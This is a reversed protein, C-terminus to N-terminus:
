RESPNRILNLIQERNIGQNYRIDNRLQTMLGRREREMHARQRRPDVEYSKAGFFFRIVTNRLSDGKRSTFQKDLGLDTQAAAVFRDLETLFRIQKLSHAFKKSLEMGVFKTKEGPLNEIDRGLFLDKNLVLEPGIKWPGFNDIMTKGMNYVDNLDAAPLWGGLMFYEPNGDSNIQTRISTNDKIWEHVVLDEDHPAPVDKEINNKIDQLAAYHNPRDVIGRLQLPINFRTWAYFPFARKMVKKEFKTLDAYNFLYRKVSLAAEEPSAGKGLKDVFHAIRAHDELVSGVKMGFKIGHGIGPVKELRAGKRMLTEGRKAGLRVEQLDIFVEWQNSIGLDNLLNSLNEKTFNYKGIKFRKNSTPSTTMIQTALKYSKIGVMALLNNGINGIVNRMHFSPFPFLTTAKWENLVIDLTKLLEGDVKPDFVRATYNDLHDAVDKDFFFDNLHTGLDKLYKDNTKTIALRRVGDPIEDEAFKKGLTKASDILVKADLIAKERVLASTLFIRSIDEDFLQDVVIGEFGPLKGESAMEGLQKITYNRWKENRMGQFVHTANFGPSTGFFLNSRDLGLKKVAKPNMIRTVYDVVSSELRVTGLHHAQEKLFMAEQRTRYESAIEAIREERKSLKGIGKSTTAIIKLDGNFAKEGVEAFEIAEKSIKEYTSGLDDATQQIKTRFVDDVDKLERDTKRQLYHVRAQIKEVKQIKKMSPIFEKPASLLQRAKGYGGFRQPTVGKLGAALKSGLGIARLGGGVAILPDTFIDMAFGVTGRGTVEGLLPLDVSGLEPVGAAELVESGIVDERPGQQISELIPEGEIAGKVGGYILQQPVSLADLFKWFPNSGSIFPKQETDLAQTTPPAQPTLPSLATGGPVSFGKSRLWNAHNSPPRSDATAPAVQETTPIRETTAGTPSISKLYEKYEELTM